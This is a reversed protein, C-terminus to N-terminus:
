TSLRFRLTKFVTIDHMMCRRGQLANVTYECSGYNPYSVAVPPRTPEMSIALHAIKLVYQAMEHIMRAWRKKCPRQAFSLCVFHRRFNGRFPILHIIGTKMM